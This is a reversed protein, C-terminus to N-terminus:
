GWLLRIIDRIFDQSQAFLIDAKVLANQFATELLLEFSSPSPAHLTFVSSLDRLFDGRPVLLALVVFIAVCYGSTLFWWSLGRSPKYSAFKILRKTTPEVEALLERKADDGISSESTLRPQKRCTYRIGNFSFADM